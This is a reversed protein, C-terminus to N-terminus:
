GGATADELAQGLRYLTAEDWYRGILQVGIPLGLQSRGCPVTLSPHGSFNTAGTLRTLARQVTEPIGTSTADCQGILPAPIATTPTVLVDVRALADDFAQRVEHRKQYSEAYAWAPVETADRLRQGVSKQFLEPRDALRNRHVVHAEVALVMRQAAVALDLGPIDVPCIACGLEEWAQLAAGVCRRVEPDLHEFYKEPAALRLGQVGAATPRAFDEPKRRVSGPDQPDFGCLTTLLAANDAVSRTIPGVHDLTWSLPLVGARSVRGKTPKLGVVGCLAAPIRVSGGTDTGVAAFCLGAAVAAAPGSSSGGTVRALDHPNHSPGTFSDTGTAGYAFEQTHLKGVLVAGARRLRRVLTADRMAVSDQCFASGMTTRVGCVDIVDKLGVPIGHLPGRDRGARIEQDARRAADLALDATVTIVANLAPNHREIRGLAERTLKVSSTQGTRVRRATLAISEAPGQGCIPTPMLAEGGRLTM